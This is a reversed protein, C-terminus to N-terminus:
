VGEKRSMAWIDGSQTDSRGTKGSFIWLKNNFAVSYMASRSSWPAHKFEMQWNRGNPSSWVDNKEIGGFIWIKGDFVLGGSGHREGWEAKEAVQTWNRGDGSSWVDSYAGRFGGGIVWIKNDFVLTTHSDRASWPANATEQKWNVGDVSSWVDNLSETPIQDRRGSSLSGGLIWLKDKFVVVGHGRRASWAAQKVVQKWEKGDSSVWVDNRFDDWTRMGGIMWLKNKFFAFRMGYREGWDTKPHSGWKIGDASTWIRKDGISYLKGDFAILPLIAMPFQGEQCNPPFCGKGSAAANQWEYGDKACASSNFFLVASILFISITILRKMIESNDEM